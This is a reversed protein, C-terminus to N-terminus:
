TARHRLWGHEYSITPHAHVWGHCSGCVALGNDPHDDGGASRPLRHHVMVARGRCAPADVQCRYGAHGLVAQRFAELRQRRVPDRRARLRTRRQLPGGRRLPSRKM